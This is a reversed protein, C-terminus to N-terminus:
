LVGCEMLGVIWCDMLGCRTDLEASRM